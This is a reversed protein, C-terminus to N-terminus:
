IGIDLIRSVDREEESVLFHEAEKGAPKQMVSRHYEYTIGGIVIKSLQIWCTIM